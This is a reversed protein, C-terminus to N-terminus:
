ALCPILLAPACLLPGLRHRLGAATALPPRSDGSRAPTPHPCPRRVRRCATRHRTHPSRHDRSPRPSLGHPVTRRGRYSWRPTPPLRPIARCGATFHHLVLHHRGRAHAREHDVIAALEPQTLLQVLRSSIVM